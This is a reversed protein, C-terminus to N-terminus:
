AFPRIPRKKTLPAPARREPIRAWDRGWPKTASPRPCASFFLVDISLFAEWFGGESRYGLTELRFDHFVRGADAGLDGRLGAVGTAYHLGFARGSEARAPRGALLLLGLVLLRKTM